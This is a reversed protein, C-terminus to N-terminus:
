GWVPVCGLQGDSADWIIVLQDWSIGLQGWSVGLQRNEDFEINENM